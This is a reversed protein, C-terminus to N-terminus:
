LRVQLNNSNKLFYWWPNSVLSVDGPLWDSQWTVVSSATDVLVFDVSLTDHNWSSMDRSFLSLTFFSSTNTGSAVPPLQPLVPSVYMCDTVRTCLLCQGREKELNLHSQLLTQQKSYTCRPVKYASKWQTLLSYIKCITCFFKFPTAFFIYSLVFCYLVSYKRLSIVVLAVVNM